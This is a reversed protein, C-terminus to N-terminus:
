AFILRPYKEAVDIAAASSVPIFVRPIWDDAVDPSVSGFFYAQVIDTSEIDIGSGRWSDRDLLTCFVDWRTECVIVEIASFGNGRAERIARVIEGFMGENNKHWVKTRSM